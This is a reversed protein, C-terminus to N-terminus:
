GIPRDGGALSDVNEWWQYAFTVSFEEIADNTGWDLEIPSIDIPFMGYFKYSKIKDGAKGYQHVDADVSYGGALPGNKFTPSRLNEEHSNIGAMWREMLNRILFDEDNIITITWDPFTRNGPFKLERGFYSLQAMGITSGPLQAAKAMYTIKQIDSSGASPTKLSVEFLNARAGDGVMQSRFSGVNFGAM